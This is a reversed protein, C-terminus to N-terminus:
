NTLLIIFKGQFLQCCEVNTCKDLCKLKCLGCSSKKCTECQKNCSNCVNKKCTQCDISNKTWNLKWQDCSPCKKSTEMEKVMDNKRGHSLYLGRERALNQLQHITYSHYSNM